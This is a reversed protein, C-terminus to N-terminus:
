YRMTRSRPHAKVNLDGRLMKLLSLNVYSLQSRNFAFLYFDRSIYYHCTYTVIHFYLTWIHLVCNKQKKKKYVNKLIIARHLTVLFSSYRRTTGSSHRGASARNIWTLLRHASCSVRSNVLELAKVHSEGPSFGTSVRLNILSLMSSLQDCICLLAHHPCHHRRLSKETYHCLSADPYTGTGM